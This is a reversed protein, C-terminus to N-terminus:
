RELFQKFEKFCKQCLDVRGLSPYITYGNKDKAPSSLAMKIYDNDLDKNCKDCYVKNIRAM